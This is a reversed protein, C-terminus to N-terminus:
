LDFGDNYEVGKNDFPEIPSEDMMESPSEETVDKYQYM